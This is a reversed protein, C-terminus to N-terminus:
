RPNTLWRSRFRELIVRVIAKVDPGCPDGEFNESAARQPRDILCNHYILPNATLGAAEEGTRVGSVPEATM